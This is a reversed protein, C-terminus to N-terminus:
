GAAELQKLEYTLAAELEPFRFQYGVKLLKQPQTRRSPLLIENAIRGAMLKM